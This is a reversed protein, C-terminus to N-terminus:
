GASSGCWIEKSYDTLNKLSSKSEELITEKDIALAFNCAKKM